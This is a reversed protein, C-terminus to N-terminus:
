IEPGPRLLQSHSFTFGRERERSEEVTAPRDISNGLPTNSNSFSPQHSGLRPGGEFTREPLPAMTSSGGKWDVHFM